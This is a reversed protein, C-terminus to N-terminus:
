RQISDADGEDEFVVEFEGATAYTNILEDWDRLILATLEAIKDTNGGCVVIWEMARANVTQRFGADLAVARAAVELNLSDRDIVAGSERRLRIEDRQRNIREREVQEKLRAQLLNEESEVAPGPGSGALHLHHDAYSKVTRRSYMGGTGLKCKGEACHRYFTRQAVAYGMRQLFRLVEAKNATDRFDAWGPAAEARAAQLREVESALEAEAAKWDALRAKTPGDKYDRMTSVVANHLVKLRLAAPGELEALLEQVTGLDPASV